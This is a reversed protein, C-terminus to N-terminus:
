SLSLNTFEPVIRNLMSGKSLKDYWQYSNTSVSPHVIWKGELEKPVGYDIQRAGVVTIYVGLGHIKTADMFNEHIPPGYGDWIFVEKDTVIGRVSQSKMLAVISLFGTKTTTRYYPVPNRGGYLSPVYGYPKAAETIFQAFTKM